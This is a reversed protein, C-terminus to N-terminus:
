INFKKNYIERMENKTKFVKWILDDTYVRQFFTKNKDYENIMKEYRMSYCWENDGNLRVHCNCSGNNLM